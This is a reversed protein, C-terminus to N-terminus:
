TYKQIRLSFALVYNSLFFMSLPPSSLSILFPNLSYTSNIGTKLHLFSMDALYQERHLPISFLLSPLTNKSPNASPFFKRPWLQSIDFYNASSPQTAGKGSPRLFLLPLIKTFHNSYPMMQLRPLHYSQTRCCDTKIGLTDRVKALFYLCIITNGSHLFSM